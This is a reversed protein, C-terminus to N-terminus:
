FRFYIFPNYTGSSLRMASAFLLCGLAGVRLSEWASRATVSPLTSWRRQAWPLLPAAGVIGVIMALIQENNLVVQGRAAPASADSLGFMGSLVTGAESLTNARFFVWAVLVTFLCYAHRLPVWSRDLLKGFGVREVVLFAGHLLGWVAFNWSAGHWLGCLLFVTVLNAYLRVKGSRNGGLPIYLYDRFWRSLTMHWRRWFETVSRSVYPYNFNEPFRFGFMQALGIAMDSYGSFDFYIQLSYAIVGLWAQSSSMPSAANAFVGDAVEAVVNAILVKKSLGLVFRQVGSAFGSVTVQRRPLQDAIEHYRVIPGAVLQPFFLMYLALLLPNKQARAERRHIDLVYSLAHFTFFSIGLPLAVKPLHIASQWHLTALLANLNEVAFNAYKFYGLLGINIVVAATIAAKSQWGSSCREVILGLTYNLAISVLVIALFKPEGWAYFLVSAVVLLTNKVIRGPTLYLALLVPLFLFLFLTSSFVL